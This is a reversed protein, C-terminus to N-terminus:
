PQSELWEMAASPDDFFKTVVGYGAYERELDAMIMKALAAKPQVIAWYKWGAQLTQPFWVQRGWDLDSQALVPNNRDDSLWKTAKYKRLAETGTMIFDQFKKGSMFKHYIHHVMKKEPYCWMTANETEYLKVPPM